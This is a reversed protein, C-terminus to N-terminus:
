RTPPTGGGGTETEFGADRDEEIERDSGCAALFSSGRVDGDGDGDGDGYGDGDGDGDGDDDGDGDGDGSRRCARIM